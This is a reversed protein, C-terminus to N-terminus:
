EKIRVRDGGSVFKESSVIVKDEKKLESTIAANKGDKELVTVPVKKAVKLTGLMEEKEVVILCYAGGLEERLASVPIVQEYEKESEQETKWVFTETGKAKEAEQEAEDLLAAYWVYDAQKEEEGSSKGASIDVEEIKAEAKGGSAFQLSVQFGQLIKGRDERSIEGKLKWGGYGLVLYETGASIGGAQVYNELVTCDQEALMKGKAKRYERLLELEKKAARM